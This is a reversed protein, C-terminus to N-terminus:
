EHEGGKQDQAPKTVTYGNRELLHVATAIRYQDNREKNAHYQERRHAKYAERNTDHEQYM